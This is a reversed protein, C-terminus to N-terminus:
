FLTLTGLTTGESDFKLSEKKVYGFSDLTREHVVIWSVRDGIFKGLGNFDEMSVSVIQKRGKPTPDNRLTVRYSNNEDLALETIFGQVTEKETENEIRQELEELYRFSQESVRSFSTRGSSSFWAFDAVLDKTKLEHNLKKLSKISEAWERLSRRGELANLLKFANEMAAANPTSRVKVTEDELVNHSETNPASPEFVMITSGPETRVMKLDVKFPKEAFFVRIAKQVSELDKDIGAVEAADGSLHVKLKEGFSPSIGYAGRLMKFTQERTLAEDELPALAATDNLWNPDSEDLHSILRKRIEPNM